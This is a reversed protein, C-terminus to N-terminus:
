KFAVTDKASPGLCMIYIAREAIPNNKFTAAFIRKINRNETLVLFYQVTKVLILVIPQIPLVMTREDEYM